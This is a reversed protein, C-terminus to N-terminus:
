SLADVEEETLGGMPIQVAWYVANIEDTLRTSDEAYPKRYDKCADLKHQAVYKWPPVDILIVKEVPGQRSSGGDDGRAFVATYSYSIIWPQQKASM